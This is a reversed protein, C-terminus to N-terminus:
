VERIAEVLPRVFDKVQRTLEPTSAHEAIRRVIASGVVVADAQAAVSRAQDPTSIGFGVAVPLSTHRRVRQVQAGITASLESQEGTVGERSVCYVFGQAAQVISSVRDEPTTPAVLQISQLESGGALDENWPIEDPPLDLILLGDAGVSVADGLFRKFGYSYIPNLYTFLVVPLSSERRLRSILELIKEVSVGANLARQSAAQITPGDALPDSFPIGLELIDVGVQELARIVELCDDLSPDGGTIYAVLGKKGQSRLRAFAADIRSGPFAKRSDFLPQPNAM